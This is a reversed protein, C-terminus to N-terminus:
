AQKQGADLGLREGDYRERLPQWWWRNDLYWRITREIGSDFTELARWGLETELKTADIAYRADHGPRDTVFSILRNHPAGAPALGDLVACISIAGNMEDASTTPRAQGVGNPLSISRGRTIKLTYGTVSTRARAM